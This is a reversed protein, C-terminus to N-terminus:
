AVIKSGQNGRGKQSRPTEADQVEFVNLESCGPAFQTRHFTTTPRIKGANEISRDGLGHDAFQIQSMSHTAGVFRNGGHQLVDSVVNTKGHHVLARKLFTFQCAFKRAPFETTQILMEGVQIFDVLREVLEKRRIEGNKRRPKPFAPRVRCPELFQFRRDLSPLLLDPPHLFEPLLMGQPPQKM